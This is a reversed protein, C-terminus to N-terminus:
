IHYLSDRVAFMDRDADNATIIAQRIPHVFGADWQSGFGAGGAGTDKTIWENNQLDEAIAIKWPHTARIQDNIWQLLSWGDPLDNFPDNNNGYRNRINSVSDFRLGDIHYKNLWFLANDRIYTRVEPRGYDPRPGWPTNRRSDDYFYIGG